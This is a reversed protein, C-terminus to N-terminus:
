ITSVCKVLRIVPSRTSAVGESRNVPAGVLTLLFSTRFASRNLFGIGFGDPGAQLTLKLSGTTFRIPRMPFNDEFNERARAPDGFLETFAAPPDDRDVDEVPGM